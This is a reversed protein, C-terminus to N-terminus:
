GQRRAPLKYGLEEALPKYDSETYRIAFTRPPPLPRHQQPKLAPFRKTLRRADEDTAVKIVFGGQMKMAAWDGAIASRVWELILGYPNPLKKERGDLLVGKPWKGLAASFTWAQPYEVVFKNWAKKAMVGGIVLEHIIIDSMM